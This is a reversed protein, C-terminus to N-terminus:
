WEQGSVLATLESRLAQIQRDLAAKAQPNTARAIKAEQAALQNTAQTRATDWQTISM